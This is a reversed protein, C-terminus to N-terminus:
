LDDTNVSNYLEFDDKYYDYFTDNNKCYKNFMEHAFDIHNDLVRDGFYNYRELNVPEGAISSLTDNMKLTEDMKIMSIKLNYTHIFDVNRHQPSLHMDFALNTSSLKSNVFNKKEELTGPYYVLVENIGSIWRSIPNRVVMFFSYDTVKNIPYNRVIKFGYSSLSRGLTSSMNKPILIFVIKKDHNICWNRKYDEQYFFEEPYMAKDDIFVDADHSKFTLEHYKCGWEKLQQETIPRYHEEGRGSKIGRATTYIITHGDDYLKNIYEIRDKYPPRGIVEGVEECITGDIDIVYIM